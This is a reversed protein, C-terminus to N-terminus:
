QSGSIQDLGMNPALSHRAHMDTPTIEPTWLVKFLPQLVQYRDINGPDPGMVDDMFTLLWM